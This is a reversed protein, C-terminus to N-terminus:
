EDETQFSMEEDMVAALVYEPVTSTGLESSVVIPM